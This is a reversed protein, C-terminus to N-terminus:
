PLPTNALRSMYEQGWDTLRRHANPARSTREVLGISEWGLALNDFESEDVQFWRAARVSFRPRLLKPGTLARAYRQWEVPCATKLRWHKSTRGDIGGSISGNFAVEPIQPTNDGEEQPMTYANYFGLAPSQQSWPPPWNANQLKPWYDFYVLFPFPAVFAFVVPLLWALWWKWLHKIIPMLHRGNVGWWIGWILLYLCLVACVCVLGIRITIRWPILVNTETSTHTIEAEGRPGFPPYTM